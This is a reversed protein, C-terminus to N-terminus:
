NHKITSHMFPSVGLSFSILWPLTDRCARRPQKSIPGNAKMTHNSSRRELVSRTMFHTGM